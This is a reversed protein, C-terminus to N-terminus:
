PGKVPTLPLFGGMRYGQKRNASNRKPISDIKQSTDPPPLGDWIEGPTPTDLEAAEARAVSFSGFTVQLRDSVMRPKGLRDSTLYKKEGEEIGIPLRKRHNKCM